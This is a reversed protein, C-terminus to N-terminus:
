PNIGAARCMDKYENSSVFSNFVADRSTGSNLLGLWYNRGANDAERGFFTKYLRNVYVTNDRTANIFEPSYVFQHALTSGSIQGNVLLSKWYDVESQAPTRGLCETYLRTVFETMARTSGSKIGCSACISEWEPSNVFNDFVVERSSNAVCEVWYNVEIDAPERKMFTSYLRRVFVENSHNSNIFEPGFFFEHAAAAGSTGNQLSSVWFNVGDQEATRGLACTYLRECFGRVENTNPTPTPTDTATPRNTPTPTPTDTNTPTVPASGGTFGPISPFNSTRGTFAPTRSGVDLDIIIQGSTPDTYYWRKRSADATAFHANPNRDAVAKVVASIYGAKSVTDNTFNINTPSYIFRLQENNSLNLQWERTNLKISVLNPFSGLDLISGDYSSPGTVDQPCGSIDLYELSSLFEIGKLKSVGSLSLNKINAIENAELSGNNNSDYGKLVNRLTSDKVGTSLNLTAANAPAAPVVSFIVLSALLAACGKIFRKM